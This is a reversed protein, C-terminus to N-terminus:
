DALKITTDAEAFRALGETGIAAAPTLCGARDPTASDTALMLGAEGLLKATTLYGPHGRAIVEVAIAEGSVTRADLFMRWRWAELRDQRPGFGSGPLVRAMTRSARGRLAPGGNAVRRVAAQTGALAGAVAYRLPLTPGPGGIAVGERYTFPELDLLAATRHIVAPNIFAAPVMPAIVAGNRGRRPRLRIPSVARVREARAPDVILAAPDTVRDANSDGAAEALSQLTGGSIMDSPRPMGPPPTTTVDLDAQALPEDYRERATQVALLVALDPPLAEFGSVQVIKVKADRAAADFEDIVDRVFPIEGTLDMYSAGGAVCADIVPRGYRTYPGVLNLVVRARRAMVLLSEPDGVDAAILEPAEVGIEALTGRLRDPNRGAAAWTAGVKPARAALYAAVQRGTVGTAGFVVLDLDSAAAV